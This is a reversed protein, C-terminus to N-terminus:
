HSVSAFLESKLLAQFRDDDTKFTMKLLDHQSDVSMSDLAMKEDATANLKRYM